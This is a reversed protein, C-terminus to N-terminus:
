PVAISIESAIGSSRISCSPGAMCGAPVRWRRTAATLRQAPSRAVQQETRAILRSWELEPRKSFVVTADGSFIYWAGLEVEGELQRETWGAYGAYVHLSDPQTGAAMAKELVGAKALLYVDGFVHEAGEPKTRSRLLALIGSRGVPGGVYIPDSRDRAGQVEELASSIPVKTRRNLVLGIVGEEDYHVLLVITQAFNPDGLDRSAVLLKGAALETTRTTQAALVAASAALFAALWRCISSCGSRMRPNDCMPLRELSNSGEFRHGISGVTGLPPGHIDPTHILAFRQILDERMTQRREAACVQAPDIRNKITGNAHSARQRNGDGSRDRDRALM